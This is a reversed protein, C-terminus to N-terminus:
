NRYTLGCSSEVFFDVSTEFNGLSCNGLTQLGISRISFCLFLNFGLIGDWNVVQGYRYTHSKAGALLINVSTLPVGFSWTDVHEVRYSSCSTPPLAFEIPLLFLHLLM